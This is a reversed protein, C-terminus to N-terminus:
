FKQQARALEPRSFIIPQKVRESEREREREGHPQSINQIAYAEITFKAGLRKLWILEYDGLNSTYPINYRSQKNPTIIVPLGRNRLKCYM